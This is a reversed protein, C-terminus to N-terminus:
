RVKQGGETPRPTKNGHDDADGDRVEAVLDHNVLPVTMGHIM